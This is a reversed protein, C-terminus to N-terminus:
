YVKMLFNHGGLANLREAGCIYYIKWAFVFFFLSARQWALRNASLLEGELNSPTGSHRPRTNQEGLNPSSDCLSQPTQM